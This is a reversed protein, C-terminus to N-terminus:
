KLSLIKAEVRNLRTALDAYHKEAAKKAMVQLIITLVLLGIIVMVHLFSVGSGHVLPEEATSVDTATPKATAPRPTPKKLAIEKPKAASVAPTTVDSAPAGAASVPATAPVAPASAATTVAIPTAPEALAPAPTAIAAPTVSAPTAAAAPTAAVAPAVPTSTLTGATAPAASATAAAVPTVASAAPTAAVAPAPTVAPAVVPAVVPTNKNEDTDVVFANGCKPCKQNIPKGLDFVALKSECKPCQVIRKM